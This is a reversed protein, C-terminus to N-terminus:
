WDCVHSSSQTGDFGHVDEVHCVTGNKAISYNVVDGNTTRKVTANFAGAPLEYTKNTKTVVAPVADNTAVPAPAGGFLASVLSLISAIIVSLLNM